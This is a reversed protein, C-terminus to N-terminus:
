GAHGPEPTIEPGRKDQAEPAREVLNILTGDCDRLCVERQAITGLEFRQPEAIWRAGAARLAALAPDLAGVYFVLAVEGIHAPGDPPALERARQAAALQFLGLMGFNPGPRKLITVPYPHHHTLGLVTTASPHTLEGSYYTETLGLTRYFRCARELDRVFLTARILASSGAEAPM